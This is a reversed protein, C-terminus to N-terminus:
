LSSRQRFSARIWLGIILFGCLMYHVVQAVLIGEIGRWYGGLALLAIRQIPFVMQTLYIARLNKLGWLVQVVVIDFISIAAAVVLWRTMMVAHSYGPFLLPQVLPFGIWYALILGSLGGALLLLGLGYKRLFLPATADSQVIQPFLLRGALTGFGRLPETLTFGLNYAAMNGMGLFTGIILRDSQGAIIALAAAGTLNRSVEGFDPGVEGGSRSVYYRNIVLYSLGMALFFLFIVGTGNIGVVLLVVALMITKATEIALNMLAYQSFKEKGQLYSFVSAFPYLLPVMFSCAAVVAAESTRGSGYLIGAWILMGVVGLLSWKVRLRTGYRLAGDYGKATAHSIANDVGPLASLSAIGLISLVYGFNAYTQQSTYNTFLYTTLLGLALGVLHNLLLSGGGKLYYDLNRPLWQRAVPHSSLTDLFGKV